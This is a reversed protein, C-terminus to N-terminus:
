SKQSILSYGARWPLAPALATLRRLRVESMPASVCVAISLPHAANVARIAPVHEPAPMLQDDVVGVVESGDECSLHALRKGFGLRFDRM